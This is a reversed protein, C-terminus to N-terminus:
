IWWGEPFGETGTRGEGVEVEIHGGVVGESGAGEMARGHVGSRSRASLAPDELRTPLRGEDGM